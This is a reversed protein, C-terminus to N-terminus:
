PRLDVSLTLWRTKMLLWIMPYRLLNRLNEDDDVDYNQNGVTSLGELEAIRDITTEMGKPLQSELIISRKGSVKMTAVTVAEAYDNSARCSYEGSDEPYVPSMELIVFGFDFFTRFRSGAKLPKGNFFWEVKLKPDDTPILKAEFHANEGEKLNDINSLPVIFVPSKKVETDIREEKGVFMSDELNQIQKMCKDPLQTELILGRKPTCTLTARTFDQGYKNVARCEYTGSNEEYCYM